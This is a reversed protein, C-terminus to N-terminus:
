LACWLLGEGSTGAVGWCEGGLGVGSGGGLSVVRRNEDRRVRWCCVLGRRRGAAPSLLAM